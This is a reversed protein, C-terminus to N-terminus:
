PLKSKALEQVMKGDARGALKALSEKMVRGIDKASTAGVAAIVEMVVKEVEEKSAQKPMYSEIIQLEATEKDVLDQRGGKTFQDISEKRQKAMTKLLQLIVPDDVPKSRDETEKYKIASIVMRIAELKVKDGSKMAEKMDSTLQERLGM